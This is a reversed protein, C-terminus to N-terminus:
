LTCEQLEALSRFESRLNGNLRNVDETNIRCDKEGIYESRNFRHAHLEIKYGPRNELMRDSGHGINLRQPNGVRFGIDRIHQLGDPYQATFQGALHREDAEAPRRESKGAVHDFPFAGLIPGSDLPHHIACGIDICRKHFLNGHHIHLIQVGLDLCTGLRDLYKIGPAAHQGRRIIDAIHQRIGGLKDVSQVALVRRNDVKDFARCGHEIDHLLGAAIDHTEVPV